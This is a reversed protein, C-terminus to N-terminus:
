QTELAEVRAKLEKVANVLAFILSSTDLDRLDTVAVGDIYAARKTVMEPIVAEVEQAVLGTYKTANDAPMKHPSNPYPVVVAEKTKKADDEAIGTMIHDPQVSTDNGKFTYTVPRLQAIETLGRTYDGEVNKIRADSADAWVGGGPKYGNGGIIISYDSYRWTMVTYPNAYWVLDASGTNYLFQAGNNFYFNRSTGDGNFGFFTTPNAFVGGVEGSQVRGGAVISTGVTMNTGVALGSGSLTLGGTLTGGTLPLKLDAYQKTAAHLASAPDAPLVIPKTSTVATASWNLIENGLVSMSVVGASNRSIGSTTEGSFNISPSATTGVPVTM